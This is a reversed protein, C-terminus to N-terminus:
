YQMLLFILTVSSSVLSETSQKWSDQIHKPISWEEADKVEAKTLEVEELKQKRQANQMFRLSLTGNSLQKGSMTITTPSLTSQWKPSRAREIMGDRQAGDQGRRAHLAKEEGGAAYVKDVDIVAATTKSRSTPRDGALQM